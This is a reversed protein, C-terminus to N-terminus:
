FTLQYQARVAIQEQDNTTTGVLGLGTEAAAGGAGSGVPDFVIVVDLTLRSHHQTFYYNLGVTLIDLDDTQGFLHATNTSGIVGSTGVVIPDGDRWIHEYRVFPEIRDDFNYSGQVVLGYVEDPDPGGNDLDISMGHFAISAAFGQYEAAADVTWLLLEADDEPSGSKDMIQYHVAGGILIGLEEGSWATYDKFQDWTGALLVEGRASIGFSVDRDGAAMLSFDNVANQYGDNIMAVVRWQDANYGVLLGQVKDTGFIENVLSREATLQYMADVLEERSFAGHGLAQFEVFMGNDWEYWVRAHDLVIDGTGFGAPADDDQYGVLTWRFDYKFNPDWVHGKGGFKVRRAQFGSEYDDVSSGANSDFDNYIYRLQFHFQPIFLFKGDESALFFEEGNWGGTVSSDLLSARTDADSLVERILTKVEEARRENLWTESKSDQLEAVRARLAKLEQLMQENTPQDAGATSGLWGCAVLMVVAFRTKLYM